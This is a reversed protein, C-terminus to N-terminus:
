SQRKYTESQQSLKLVVQSKGCGIVVKDEDISVVECEYTDEGIKLLFQEGSHLVRDNVFAQRKEGILIAQLKLNAAVRRIMAAQGSHAAVNVESVSSNSAGGKGFDRWRNSRFFDRVLMDNRGKVKPLEIFAVKLENDGADARSASLGVASGAQATKPGGRLLVRVWMLVMVAVLLLAIGVKKRDAGM